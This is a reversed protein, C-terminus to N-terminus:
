RRGGRHRCSHAQRSVEPPRSKVNPTSEPVPGRAERIRVEGARVAARLVPRSRLERALHAMDQAKREKIGLVERAYDRLSSFGLSMLRDGLCMAALGEGIAVDLAGSTRAVHAVTREFADTDTDGALLIERLLQPPVPDPVGPAPLIQSPVAPEPSTSSAATGPCLVSPSTADPLAPALAPEPIHLDPPV